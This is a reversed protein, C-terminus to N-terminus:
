RLRMEACGVRLVHERAPPRDMRNGTWADRDATDKTAASKETPKEV